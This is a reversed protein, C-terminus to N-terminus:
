AQHVRQGAHDDDVERKHQGERDPYQAAEQVADRLLELFCRHDVARAAEAREAADQEREHGGPEHRRGDEGEDLGPVLEDERVNQEPAGSFCVSVIQSALKM